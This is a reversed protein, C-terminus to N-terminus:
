LPIRSETDLYIPLFGALDIGLPTIQCACCYAEVGSEIAARTKIGYTKDIDDALSFGACDSRQVVYLIVSRAGTELHIKRLEDMHKAGRETVSDPFFALDGRKLHVNKVEVYCPARDPHTLYWDIRSRTGYTVEPKHASYGTLFPLADARIMDGVLKNPHSTNVGVYTDDVYVMEWTYRLKREVHDPVPSVFCRTGPAKVDLMAGSNPCHATIVDGTDLRIDALFRKYRQILTGPILPNPFEM